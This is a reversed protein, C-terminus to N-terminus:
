FDSIDLGDLLSDNNSKLSKSKTIEDDLIRSTHYSLPHKKHTQLSNSSDSGDSINSDNIGKIEKKKNEKIAIKREFM